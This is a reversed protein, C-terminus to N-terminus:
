IYFTRTRSSVSRCQLGGETKGRTSRKNSRRECFSEAATHTKAWASDNLVQTVDAKTWQEFPKSLFSEQAIQTSPALLVLGLGIHVILFRRRFLFM